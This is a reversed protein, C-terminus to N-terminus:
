YTVIKKVYSWVERLHKIILECEPITPVRLLQDDSDKVQFIICLFSLYCDMPFDQHFSTSFMM